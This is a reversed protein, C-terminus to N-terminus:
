NNKEMMSMMASEIADAVPRMEIGAAVAKDTNLRCSSRLAKTLGTEQDDVFEPLQDILGKQLGMEIVDRWSFWGPNTLHYIGYPLRESICRWCAAVFEDIQTVSNEVDAVRPYSMLKSILNRPGQASDFPLRMRWIFCDSGNELLEEGMVKSGSYFSGGSGFAFNPVDSERFGQDNPGGGSYVCGSSVHGFVVGYRDCVEKLSVPLFANAKLCEDPFDECADVNPRGVYGATNIVAVPKVEAIRAAVLAQNYYDFDKTSWISFPVDNEEFFRAFVQGVYGTGGILIVKNLHM